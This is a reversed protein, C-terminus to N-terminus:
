SAARGAVLKVTKQAQGLISDELALQLEDADEAGACHASSGTSIHTGTSLGLIQHLDWRSEPAKGIYSPNPNELPKAAFARFPTTATPYPYPDASLCGMM